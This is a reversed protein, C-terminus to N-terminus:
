YVDYRELKYGVHINMQLNIIILFAMSREYYAVTSPSCYNKKKNLFSLIYPCNLLFSRSLISQKLM